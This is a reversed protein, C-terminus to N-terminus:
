PAEMAERYKEVLDIETPTIKKIIVPLTDWLVPASKLLSDSHAHVGVVFQTPQRVVYAVTHFDPLDTLAQILSKVTPDQDTEDDRRLKVGLGAEFKPVLTEDEQSHLDLFSSVVDALEGEQRVVELLYDIWRDEQTIRYAVFAQEVDSPTQIEWDEQFGKFLWGVSRITDPFDKKWADVEGPHQRCVCEISASFAYKYVDIKLLNLQEVAKLVKPFNRVDRHKTYNSFFDELTALIEEGEACDLPARLRSERRERQKRDAEQRRHRLAKKQDRTM